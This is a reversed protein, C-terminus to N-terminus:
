KSTRRIIAKRIATSMFESKSVEDKKAIEEIAKREDKTLPVLVRKTEKKRPM